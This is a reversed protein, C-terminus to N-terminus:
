RPVEVMQTSRGIMWAFVVGAAWYNERRVLPSDDFVARALNDYRVFGGVWYKPFRKTLDVIFQSGAYGGTAQYAPRSATANQPEVTYFYGNYHRNAFLPGAFVGFEWGPHGLADEADLRFGPTLTWGIPQPPSQITFAQRVPVKFDIKTRGDDNRWLHFDLSLGAEVTPKLEPMDSRTRDDSVPMTADFSLNLEVWPRSFLLGHLGDKDAKLFPGNYVLYPVPVPFVHSTNAGRYDSYGLAGLGLGYEWLPEEKTQAPAALWVIAMLAAGIQSIAEPTM